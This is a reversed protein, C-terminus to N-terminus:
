YLNVKKAIQLFSALASSQNEPLYAVSLEILSKNSQLQKYVISRKMLTSISLPVFAIGLGSSVLALMAQIHDVEYKIKPIINSKKFLDMTTNYIGPGHRPAFMIFNEDKLDNLQISKLKAKINNIPIAVLLPEKTLVVTQLADDNIPTRLFGVNVRKEKIATIQEQPSMEHISLEIGPFKQHYEKLIDPLISYTASVIFAISLSGTEGRLARLANQKAKEAAELIQKADKFFVEGSSTLSVERKTRYFLKTKLENELDKIQQSLPPQAIHLKKAANGFHLEEAVAVFYKLHRLEM